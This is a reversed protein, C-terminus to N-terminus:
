SLGKQTAGFNESFREAFEAHTFRHNQTGHKEIKLAGLPIVRTM